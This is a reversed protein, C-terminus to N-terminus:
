MRHADKSVQPCPKVLAPRHMSNLVYTVEVQDAVAFAARSNQGLLSLAAQGFKLQVSLQVHHSWTLTLLRIQRQHANILLAFDYRVPKTSAQARVVHCADACALLSPCTSHCLLDM